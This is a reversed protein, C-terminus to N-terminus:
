SLRRLPARNERRMQDVWEIVEPDNVVAMVEPWVNRRTGSATAVGGGDTEECHTVLKALKAELMPNM